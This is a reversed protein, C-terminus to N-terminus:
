GNYLSTGDDLRPSPFNAMYVKDTFVKPLFTGHITVDV